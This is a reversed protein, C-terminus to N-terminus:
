CLFAFTFVMEHTPQPHNDPHVYNQIPSNNITVSMEVVQASPM